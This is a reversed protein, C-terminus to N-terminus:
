STKLPRTDLNIHVRATLFRQVPFKQLLGHSLTPKVSFISNTPFQFSVVTHTSPNQTPNTAARDNQAPIKRKESRANPFLTNLKPSKKHVNFVEFHFVRQEKWWLLRDSLLCYASYTLHPKKKNLIQRIKKNRLATTFIGMCVRIIGGHSNNRLIIM